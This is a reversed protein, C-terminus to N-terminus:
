SQKENILRKLKGAMRIAKQLEEPFQSMSNRRMNEALTILELNEIRFDQKCKNNFVVIHGEPVAGHRKRWLLVHVPVWDKNSGNATVKRQLIGYISLRETGIPMYNHPKVGPKFQTKKNNGGPSWGKVGLNHPKNGPQFRSGVYHGNALRGANDSKMYEATKRLGMARARSYISRIPRDMTKAIAKTPTDPYLRELMATDTDLWPKRRARGDTM